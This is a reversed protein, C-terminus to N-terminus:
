HRAEERHSAAKPVYCKREHKPCYPSGPTIVPAECFIWPRSSTMPYCCAGFVPVAPPRQKLPVWPRRTRKVYPVYVTKIGDLHRRCMGAVQGKTRGLRAAIAVFSLGEDRMQRLAAILEVTPARPNM